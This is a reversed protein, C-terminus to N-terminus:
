RGLALLQRTLAAARMAASKILDLDGRVRSEPDLRGLALQARGAVITLLNNFDHAVGGALRAVSEMKQAQVLQDQAQKLDEYAHQAAQYLRANELATAAQDAFAKVLATEDDTFVRGSRVGLDLAGIVQDMVILPAALVARYPAQAIRARAAPTLVVRPDTLLDATSVVQRTRVALGVVGTGAPFTVSEPAVPGVDGSAAVTVLEESELRFVAANEADFLARVHAAIRRAVETVDLSQSLTRGVEALAEAEHRRRDTESYLRASQFALAAQDAFASLLEVEDETFVRGLPTGISLAGIVEGRVKLPVAAVAAFQEERARDRAWEPLAFRPDEVLNSTWVPRGDAVARGAVGEGAAFRQGIWEAPDAEGAVTVCRLSSSAQEVQFVTSQSARFLRLVASAVKRAAENEDLTGVLERGVEALARATAEAAARERAAEAMEREVVEIEAIRSPGTAVPAKGEGHARATASLSAIGGALRRGLVTALAGALLLLVIGGGTIVWLSTRAPADVVSVPVALGVTWESLRSRRYAGYVPVGEKTLARNAGEESQRSQTVFAAPAPKGLWQEIGRTRALITGQRDFIMAVSEPPLKSEGLLRGLSAVDLGAALVYVLRGERLVPVTIGIIPANFVPGIFLDSIAVEGTEVTRRVVPLNGSHPLSAGFPRLLNVLQQGSRDMLNITRWGQHVKLVRQAQAYFAKLNGTDLHDSTALAEHQQRDFLSTVIVAFILVPVVSAFVLATLHFRVTRPRSTTTAM